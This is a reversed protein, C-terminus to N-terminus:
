LPSLRTHSELPSVNASAVGVRPLRQCRTEIKAFNSPTARDNVTKSSRPNTAQSYFKRNLKGNYTREVPDGARLAHAGQLDGVTVEPTPGHTAQETAGEATVVLLKLANGMIKHEASICICDKMRQFSALCCGRGRHPGGQVGGCQHHEDQRGGTHLRGEEDIRGLDSMYVTDGRLVTATLEPEGIYGSMLTDGQCAIHGEATIIIRSHPMTRGLCGAICRGDNYNYTSVIGTETSAYTNYPRTKPPLRCLEQAHRLNPPPAGGCEIFDIKEAYSAPREASFQMLVYTRQGTCLFHGDEHCSLPPPAGFFANM